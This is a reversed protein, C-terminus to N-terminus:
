ILVELGLFGGDTALSVRPSPDFWEASAGLLNKMTKASSVSVAGTGRALIVAEDSWWNSDTLFFAKM